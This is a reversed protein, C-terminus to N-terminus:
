EEEYIAIGFLESAEEIGRAKGEFFAANARSANEIDTTVGQKNADDLFDRYLRRCARYKRTLINEITDM